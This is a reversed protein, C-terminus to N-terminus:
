CPHAHRSPKDASRGQLLLDVLNREQQRQWIPREATSMESSSRSGRSDVFENRSRSLLASTENQIEHTPGFPALEIVALEGAFFAVGFGAEIHETGPVVAAPAPPGAKSDATMSPHGVRTDEM